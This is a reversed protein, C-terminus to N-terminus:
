AAFSNWNALNHHGKNLNKVHLEGRTFFLTKLFLSHMCTSLGKVGLIEKIHAM